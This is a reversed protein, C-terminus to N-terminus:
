GGIKVCTDTGPLMVFGDGYATCPKARLAPTPKAPTASRPKPAVNPSVISAGATQASATSPAIVAATANVTVIGAIAGAAM